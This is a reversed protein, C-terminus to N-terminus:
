PRAEAGPRPQTPGPMAPMQRAHRTTGFTALGGIIIVFVPNLMANPIADLAFMIAILAAATTCASEALRTRERQLRMLALSAPILLWGLLAVLGAIGYMGLALVWQGDTVSIDRGQEDYVRNRKWGAWGFVPRELAHDVLRDENVLRFALSQAREESVISVLEYAHGGNWELVTRATIYTPPVFALALILVPARTRRVVWLLALGLLLQLWAGFSRCGIATLTLPILAWLISVGRVRRLWGSAWLQWGALTATTMWFAVMLGHEMFVTPRYGGFRISQMFDHPHEGYFMNHLQPSMRMEYVCLPAYLLGAIFLVVCADRHSERTTFYLRGLLYPVGWALTQEWTTSFADYVRLPTQAWLQVDPAGPPSLPGNALVSAFPVLCWALMPLDILRPKYSLLTRHDFLMVGLLAAYSAAATKNFRPLGSWDYEAMPLFMWALAYAAIVAWRARLVWFLLPGVVLWGFMTLPVFPTM